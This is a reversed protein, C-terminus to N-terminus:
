INDRLKLPKTNPTVGTLVKLVVEAADDMHQLAVDGTGKWGVQRQRLALGHLGCLLVFTHTDVPIRGNRHSIAAVLRRVSYDPEFNSQLPAVFVKPLQLKADEFASCHSARM